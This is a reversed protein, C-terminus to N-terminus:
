VRARDRKFEYPYRSYYDIDRVKERLGSHSIQVPRLLLLLLLM